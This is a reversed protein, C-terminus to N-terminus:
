EGIFFRIFAGTEKNFIVETVFGNYGEIKKNGENLMLIDEDKPVVALYKPDIPEIEVGFENMLNLFKEKDTLSKITNTTNAVHVNAM